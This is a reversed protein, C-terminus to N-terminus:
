EMTASVSSAFSCYIAIESAPFAMCTEERGALTAIMARSVGLFRRRIVDRFVPLTRECMRADAGGM